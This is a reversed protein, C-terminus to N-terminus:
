LWVLTPTPSSTMVKLITNAHGGLSDYYEFRKERMNVVAVCWHLGLHLPVIIKDKEFIDIQWWTDAHRRRTMIVHTVYTVHTIVKRTWKKVRDYGKDALMPYFFTNMLECKPLSADKKNREMLINLYFNIVQPYIDDTMVSWDVDWSFDCMKKEIIVYRRKLWCVDELAFCMECWKWDCDVCRVDDVVGISMWM